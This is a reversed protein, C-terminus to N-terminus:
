NYEGKIENKDFVPVPQQRVMEKLALEAVKFYDDAHSYKSSLRTDIYKFDPLYIDVTGDLSKITEKSEYGSTNYVIPIRLGKLRADKVAEIIQPVYHTPTVLNINLAQKHQLELFIEALREVTIM